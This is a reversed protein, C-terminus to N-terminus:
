IWERIKKFFVPLIDKSRRINFMYLLYGPFSRIKMLNTRGPDLRYHIFWFGLLKTIANPPRVAFQMEIKEWRKTRSASLTQFVRPPILMDLNTHLYHLQHDLHGTLHLFKTQDIIWDWDIESSHKNFIVTADAAWRVPSINEWKLGHLCTHLFHASTNLTRCTHVGVQFTVVDDWNILPNFQGWSRHLAQWHLDISLGNTSRFNQANRFELLGEKPFNENSVLNLDELIAIAAPTDSPKVIVDVDGFPRLGPNRYYQFALPVGKLLLHEIGNQDLAQLIPIAKSVVLQNKYWYFRYVHKYKELEESNVGLQSLNQYLLPLLRHSGEDLDDEDVLPQWARWAQIAREDQFVVAKLLQQSLVHKVSYGSRRTFRGM